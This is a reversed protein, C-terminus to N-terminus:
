GRLEAGLQERCATIVAQQSQEVEEATLTREASRYRATLLYSKKGTPIQKGRYQSVFRLGELLPGAATAVTKEVQDWSTAEDLIFNLDRDSAPYQPTPAFEPTLDATEALMNFDLEAVTATDHLNLKEQADSSIEGLWGWPQGNLLLECGRGAAFGADDSPRVEVKNAHNIVNAILEVLGKAEFFSDGCVLSLRTPEASPEGPQAALYVHAIEYLRANFTGRKENERRSQLLSPVLSQRLVNERKRSSHEVRLPEGEGVPRFLSFLDEDVFTMTISEFYGNGTLVNHVRDAVHDVVRKHSSTLPVLVDEPIREYGYIRAVEEILDIERSLDRRWSPAVFHAADVTAAGHLQLGLDQLIRIVEDRPVDIGLIRSIQAFRLEIPKTNPQRGAGAVVSGTLLEGGAIELILEACRRSAWDLGRPDVGREFRYSSDSHLNLARATNRISLPQFDAVEILINTTAESIETELGGMVGAVAVPREADAIVCMDAQLEYERQDIATIKEGAAARRVVIRGERLKDLDFAHLPQGCEMLVYNTIDVINNVPRFGLTELRQKLWAPSEGVKAGRIIRATYQPCLDECQNDVATADATKEAIEAPQATPICIEKDYLAAIERAVGLHGLCDPRNSTVELDIGLDAPFPETGELNLGSLTLKETLDDATMDLDVYEKLWNWSVIM